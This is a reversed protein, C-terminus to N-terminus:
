LWADRRICFASHSLRAIEHVANELVNGINAVSSVRACLSNAALLGPLRVAVDGIRLLNACILGSLLTGWHRRVSMAAARLAASRLALRHSAATEGTPASQWHDVRKARRM